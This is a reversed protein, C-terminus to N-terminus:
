LPNEIQGPDFAGRQTGYELAEQVDVVRPGHQDFLVDLLMGNRVEMEREGDLALVCPVDVVRTAEGDNLWQHTRIHITEIVGPAIPALTRRGGSGFTLMIGSRTPPPALGLSGAIASLGITGPRLRTSWLQRLRDIQWVARAGTSGAFSVVDILALDVPEGERLIRLCPESRIAEPALGQAVIAAALGALTGEVMQPFANNTGTSIPLLPTNGSGKATARCTGDGGLVVICAAGAERLLAAARSTDTSTGTVEVPLSETSCHLELGEAAREILGASDPMWQVKDVGLAAIGLLIRRLTNIKDHNSTTTGHAVVRRIDKGSVPNAIIGVLAM